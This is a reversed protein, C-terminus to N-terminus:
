MLLVAMGTDKVMDEYTLQEEFPRPGLLTVLGDKDLKEKDLLAIAVKEVESMHTKLLEKTRTYAETVLRDVETDILSALKESYPKLMLFNTDEQDFCLQGVKESM